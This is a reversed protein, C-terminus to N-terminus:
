NMLLLPRVKKHQTWGCVSFVQRSKLLDRSFFLDLWVSVLLAFLLWGVISSIASYNLRLSDCWLLLLVKYQTFTFILALVLLYWLLWPGNSMTPDKWWAWREKIMTKLPLILWTLWRSVYIFSIYNLTSGVAPPKCCSHVLNSIFGVCCLRLLQVSSLLGRWFLMFWLQALSM